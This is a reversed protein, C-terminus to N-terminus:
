SWMGNIDVIVHVAHDTYLCLAGSGDLKVMAGNAIAPTSPDTNLNSVDPMAGCPFATVFGTTSPEAATLNVSV